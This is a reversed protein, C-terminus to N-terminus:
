RLLMVTGKRIIKKNSATRIEVYYVYAGTAQLESKYRGDWYSNINTSSYLLTGWKNFILLKFQKYNNAATVQFKDNRGDDNPTFASPIFIDRFVKIKASSTGSGCGVTSNANLTYVADETPYVTPTVLHSDNIFTAPSWFFDVLTGTVTANLIVSDGLNINHDPGANVYLNQLVTVKVWASDRCGFANSIAVNYITTNNPSAIPNAITSSSLGNSPTWQYQEGGAASLVVSKGQCISAEPKNISITVGPFVGLYFSDLTSCGSNYSQALQYLGTDAFQVNPVISLSNDSLYGNPGTWLASTAIDSRYPLVVDKGLCGRISKPALHAPLPHVNTVIFNSTIWCKASGMNSREALLIRYLVMGSDRRPISYASYTAGTINKWTKGSDISNQWQTVPDTFGPEFSAGLIFPNSYGACVNVPEASTDLTARIAPGCMAFTIDDIAFASGCGYAPTTQMIIKVDNINAPMVFSVGYQKWVKDATVPINGTSSSALITGSLTEVTFNINPLVATGGCTIPQMVNTIWAAFQYNTNGCLEHVTDTYIVGPTSEANVVMYAGGEDQTHDGALLFWTHDGCGLLFNTVSYTGKGPCGGSYDFSTASAPLKSSKVGFTVNVIPDGLNGNCLQAQLGFPVFLLCFIAFCIKDTLYVGRNCTLIIKM